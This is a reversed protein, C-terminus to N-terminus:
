RSAPASSTVTSSQPARGIPAVLTARQVTWAVVMGDLLETGHTRYGPMRLTAEDVARRQRRTWAWPMLMSARAGLSGRSLAAWAATPTMAASPEIVLLIGDDSLCSLLQKLANPRDGLVALLSAASVVDAKRGSLALEELGTRVFQVSSSNRRAQEIMAPDVDFGTVRYGREVALRAVLGPGCGVDFWQRGEGPPLLAVAQRHLEAYFAAGQVHNFVRASLRSM